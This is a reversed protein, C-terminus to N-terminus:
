VKTENKAEKRLVKRAIEARKLMSRGTENITHVALRHIHRALFRRATKPLM